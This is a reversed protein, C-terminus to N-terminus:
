VKDRLLQEILTDAQEEQAFMSLAIGMAIGGPLSFFLFLSFSLPSFLSSSLSSFPSPFRVFCL